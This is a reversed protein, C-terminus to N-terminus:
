LNVELDECFLTKIDYSRTELIYDIADSPSEAEVSVTDTHNKSVITVGYMM